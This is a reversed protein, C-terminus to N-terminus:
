RMKGVQIGSPRFKLDTIEGIPDPLATIQHLSEIIGDIRVDDLILRDILSNDLQNNKGQEVDQQNAALIAERNQNIQMAINVLASNKTKTTASRLSKAAIRANKGLTTILNDISGM